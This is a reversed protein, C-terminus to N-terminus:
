VVRFMHDTRADGNTDVEFQYHAGPRFSTPSQVGALPNVTMVLVAKGHARFAYIDNIDTRGDRMVLPSELHDAAHSGVAAVVLAAGIALAGFVGLIRKM